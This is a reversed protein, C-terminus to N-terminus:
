SLWAYLAYAILWFVGGFLSAWGIARTFADDASENTDGRVYAEHQRRQQERYETNDERRM